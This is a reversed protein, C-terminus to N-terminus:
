PLRDILTALADHRELPIAHGAGDVVTIPLDPVSARLAKALALYKSDLSGVALALRDALAPLRDTLSETRGPSAERLVRAWARADGALRRRTVLAFDPHSRLSAFLPQAYWRELFPALGERELAAALQDDASARESRELPDDIGASASVALVRAIATPHEALAALAVRGGLSYGVLTAPALGAARIAEALAAALERVSRGAGPADLFAARLVRRQVGLSSVTADWDAPEGLFGHVLVVPSAAESAPPPDERLM